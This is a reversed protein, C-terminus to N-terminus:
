QRPKIRNLRAGSGEVPVAVGVMVRVPVGGVTVGSKLEVGAMNVPVMVLVDVAVEVAVVVRVPVVV